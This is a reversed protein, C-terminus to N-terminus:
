VSASVVRSLAAADARPLPFYQGGMEAAIDRASPQPQPSIDVVLVRPQGSRLARAAVRADEMAEPRGQRGDRTVNARGDTMFVILPTQAKRRVADALVAAADIAAALPTAGGGPLDVLCRKARTLSRTPPLLLAASNGRFAILAAQDRRVYCEALLLEVAGKAEALRNLASSGSADVVFITTTATRRKFRTVRFDEPRVLITGPRAGGERRRLPQWPAAARLTEILNVRQGARLDGRVTGVPRGRTLTSQQLGARGSASRRPRPGNKMLQALLGPPLSAQVAALIMDELAPEAEKQEVNEAAADPPPPEPADVEDPAPPAPLTTARPALVLRAALALDDEAAQAHAALAAAARAVRMALLPARVSAIGLANAAACLSSVSDDDVTTRYLRSRAAAVHMRADDIPVADGHLGALDTHIALRDALAASLAEDDIGEDFAVIGFRADHRRAVGDRELVVEHRDFASTIHAVTTSSLREAMSLIVIGGDAEAILGREVIPRGARLTAALDLGGLLRGESVHLPIRRVPTQAPLADRLFAAWRERAPTAGARLAIGGVGGPDVAFLLAAQLAAPWDHVICPPTM